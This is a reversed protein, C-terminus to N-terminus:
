VTEETDLVPHILPSVQHCKKGGNESSAMTLMQLLRVVM